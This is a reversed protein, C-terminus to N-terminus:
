VRDEDIGHRRWKPRVDEAREEARLMATRRRSFYRRAGASGLAALGAVGILALAWQCTLIHVVFVVTAKTRASPEGEALETGIRRVYLGLAAGLALSVALADVGMLAASSAATSSVFYVLAVLAGLWYVVAAARLYGAALRVGPPCGTRSRPAPERPAPVLSIGAAALAGRTPTSCATCAAVQQWCVSHAVAGCSGCTATSQGDLVPDGAVVCRRADPVSPGGPELM